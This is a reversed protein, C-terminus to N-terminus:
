FSPMQKTSSTDPMYNTSAKHRPQMQGGHLSSSGLFGNGHLYSLKCSIMAPQCSIHHHQMLVCYSAFLWSGALGFM